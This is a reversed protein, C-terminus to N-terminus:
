MQNPFCRQSQIFTLWKNRNDYSIKLFEIIKLEHEVNVGLINRLRHVDLSLLAHVVAVVDQLLDARAREADDVPASLDLGPVNVRCLEDRDRVGHLLREDPLLDVDHVVQMVVLQDVEVVSEFILVFHNENKFQLNVKPKRLFFNFGM